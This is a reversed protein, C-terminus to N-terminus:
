ADFKAPRQSMAWESGAQTETELTALRQELAAIRTELPHLVAAGPKASVTMAEEDALSNVPHAPIGVVTQGPLVDKVVVANAGVRAGHGIVVPGILQAGAGIVVDDEVTPHRKVKETSVGGLTVGHYIKVRNGIITTEGIVVGMGHDIFFYEGIVAAPHIEIGTVLRALASLVRAITKLQLKWLRHSLRHILVAHFGAYTLAVELKHRAAPDSKLIHLLEQNLSAM